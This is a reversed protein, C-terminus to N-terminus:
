LDPPWLLAPSFNDENCWQVCLLSRHHGASSDVGSRQSEAVTWANGNQNRSRAVQFNLSHRYQSGNESGPIPLGPLMWHPRMAVWAALMAWAAVDDASCAWPQWHRLARRRTTLNPFSFSANWWRRIFFIVYWYLLTVLCCMWEMKICYVSCGWIVCFFSTLDSPAPLYRPGGV